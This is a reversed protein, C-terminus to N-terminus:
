RFTAPCPVNTGTITKAVPTRRLEVRLPSFFHLDNSILSGDDIAYRIATKLANSTHRTEGLRAPHQVRLFAFLTPM